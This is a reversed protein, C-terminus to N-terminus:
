ATKWKEVIAKVETAASQAAEGPSVEGKIVSLFMRPIVFQNFVEMSAPTAYGPFGLNRTWYLADKLAQYKWPPDAKPDKALRVALDPLTKQYIPFNCGGSKEYATQSHNILDALFQKAGEQNQAFSWIASCNTVHPVAIVGASGLLPPQLMIKSALAPEQKEATRWASIANTTCSVKRSLLARVNGSSGWALQEPAGADQYLAQAFKLAEVTRGNYISVNGDADLVRSRFAYLLTHLTINSELSPAFALGCPIGLKARIRQGGSRLSDYHVPGAPMNVAAWCDQLFQLPAPMWSDCFAFYKKNKPDFTSYHAFRDLNGFRSAVTQYVEGHDIVQRRYPAPPWPFMFLDHGSRAAVEAAAVANVREVPIRDVVVETDHQRGWEAALETDFWRDFEPLFHAWKAIKLVRKQQAKARGSLILYPGLAAARIFDRRELRPNSGAPM